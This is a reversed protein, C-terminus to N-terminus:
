MGFRCLWGLFYAQDELGPASQVVTDEDEDSSDCLFARLYSMKM